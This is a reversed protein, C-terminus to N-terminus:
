NVYTELLFSEILQQEPFPNLNFETIDRHDNIETDDLYFTMDNETDIVFEGLHNLQNENSPKFEQFTSDANLGGALSSIKIEAPLELSIPNKTAFILDLDDVVRNSKFEPAHALILAPNITNQQNISEHQESTILDTQLPLKIDSEEIPLFQELHQITSSDLNEPINSPTSAIQIQAPTGPKLQPLAIQTEQAVIKLKPSISEPKLSPQTITTKAVKIPIQTTNQNTAITTAIKPKLVPASNAAIVIASSPTVKLKPAPGPDYSIVKDNKDFVIMPVRGQDKVKAFATQFGSLPRNDRPVHVTEQDPFLEILQNRTLRPWHRIEGTDLHTFPFRANPYYGVGGYQKRLAISRVTKLDVDPIHFDIAKGKTHQSNFAVNKSRRRLMANTAPTRYASVIHIAEQSGSEQYIEWLLDFLAPDMEIAENTRWDAMFQNLQQLGKKKFKGRKKFVVELSEKTNQNYLNLTRTEANAASHFLTLSSFILVLCFGIVIKPNNLVLNHFVNFFAFDGVKKFFNKILYM